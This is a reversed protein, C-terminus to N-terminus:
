FPNPWTAFVITYYYYFLDVDVNLHLDAMIEKLESWRLISIHDQSGKVDMRNWHTNLLEWLQIKTKDLLTLAFSQGQKFQKKKELLPLLNVFSRALNALLHSDFSIRGSKCQSLIDVIEKLKILQFLNM